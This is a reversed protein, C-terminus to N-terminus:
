DPEAHRGPGVHLIVVLRVVAGGFILIDFLRDLEVGAIQIRLMGFGIQGTDEGIHQLSLQPGESFPHAMQEELLCHAPVDHCIQRGGEEM